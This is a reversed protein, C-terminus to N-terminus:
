CWEREGPKGVVSDKLGTRGSRQVDEQTQATGGHPSARLLVRLDAHKATGLAALSFVLSCPPIFEGGTSGQKADENLRIFFWEHKIAVNSQKIVTIKCAM